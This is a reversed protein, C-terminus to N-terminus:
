GERQNGRIREFRELIVEARYKYDAAVRNSPDLELVMDWEKIALEMEESQFYAIGNRLHKEVAKDRESVAKELLDKANMYSPVIRLAATFEEIARHYASSEFYVKGKLYHINALDEPADDKSLIRKAATAPNAAAKKVAQPPAGRSAATRQPAGGSRMAETVLELKRKALLNEPNHRLSDRYEAAAKSLIGAREYDEALEMHRRSLQMSISNIDQLLKRSAKYNPDGKPIRGAKERAESLRGSEYLLVARDYETGQAYRSSMQVCGAMFVLLAIMSLRFLM